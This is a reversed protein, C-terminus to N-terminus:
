FDDDGESGVPWDEAKVCFRHLIASVQARTANGGPSLRNGGVGNILEVANAWSLAEAAWSSVEDADSFKSLDARASIPYGATRAYNYLMVALQERTVPSNPAFRGGGVGNVIGLEYAWAVAPTYWAGEPTDTFPIGTVQPSGALRHLITVVQARTTTAEPLFTFPGTGNMLGHDYAYQVDGAYWADPRVDYFGAVPMPIGVKLSSREPVLREEGIDRYGWTWLSGDERIAAVGLGGAAVAYVGEMLQAPRTMDYHYGAPKYGATHHYNGAGGNGLAGYENDGWLWLTGDTRIAATHGSGLSVYCVDELVKRPSHVDTVTGNGVQGHKNFGWVWLSGDEKIAACNSFSACVSKVGTMIQRPVARSTTSGDGLQGFYNYGWTWLTGDSKVAAGFDDGAACAIVDDMIKVPHDRHTETGDGLRGFNNDGWAWLSGDNKIALAFQGGLSVAQVSDMVKVPRTQIPFDSFLGIKQDYVGPLGLEGVANTGWMWLSGDTRIAAGNSDSTAVSYVRDMVRVPVDSDYTTGVGLQGSSGMGWTWLVGDADVVAYNRDSDRSVRNPQGVIAPDDACVSACLLAILGALLCLRLILKKM